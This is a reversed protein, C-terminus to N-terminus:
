KVVSPIPAFFRVAVYKFLLWILRQGATCRLDNKIDHTFACSDSCSSTLAISELSTIAHMGESTKQMWSLAELWHLVHAKLFQHVQVDVYVQSSSNQLHQIWFLCVYQIEQPLYQRVRSSDIETVCVGQTDLSCIDQKLSKTMLYLTKNVITQHAQKEDIWFHPDGCREKHILSERLAATNPRNSYRLYCSSGGADSWNRKEICRTVEWLTSM